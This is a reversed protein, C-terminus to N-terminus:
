SCIREHPVKEMLRNFQAGSLHVLTRHDGAEFYIDSLGELSEDVVSRLGYAAGIPPVAGAECDHFLDGIEDESALAIPQKLWRGLEELKVQSSTPVIALLYGKKRRIVVGKALCDGPIESAEATESSCGTKTHTALDYEIDQDDLYQRLTLAIGM